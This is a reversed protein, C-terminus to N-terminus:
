KKQAKVQSDPPIAKGLHQGVSLGYKQAKQHDQVEEKLVFGGKFSLDFSSHPVFSIPQEEWITALRKQWDELIQLCAGEPVHSIGYAIQPELVQFGCFHLIGNQLPWLLVNIDGNVGAPSYMRGTAGTSFSLLAKKTQFILLDAAELKKQEAGIDSSLRGEEWAWATEPGYKFNSPDRPEGMIDNRSLVPNFKMQYLDSVTVSWGAEQLVAVAADKMAHNFSATEEHALVILAKRGALCPLWSPGKGPGRSVRRAQGRLAPRQSNQASQPVWGLTHAAGKGRATYSRRPAAGRHEALEWSPCCSHLPGKRWTGGGGGGRGAEGGGAGARAALRLPPLLTTPAWPLALHM